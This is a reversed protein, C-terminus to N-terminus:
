TLLPLIQFPRNRGFRYVEFDRRDTTFVLDTGLDEALIVLTADAYDMPQDAYREILVRCRRLTSLSSPILTAGGALFFELCRERGSPIRGLLHTAETLIAETSVVAGHWGSFFDTFRRHHTQARDLLSILAGTDLLLEGAM